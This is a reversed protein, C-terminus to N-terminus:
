PCSASSSRISAIRCGPSCCRGSSSARNAPHYPAGNSVRHQARTKSRHQARTESSRQQARTESSRQQARTESGACPHSRLDGPTAPSKGTGPSRRDASRREESVRASCTVRASRTVPASCWRGVPQRAVASSLLRCCDVASSLFNSSLFIFAGTGGLVDEQGCDEQRVSESSTTRQGRAALKVANGWWGALRDRKHQDQQPCVM